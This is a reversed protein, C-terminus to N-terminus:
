GRLLRSFDPEQLLRREPHRNNSDNLASRLLASDGASYM